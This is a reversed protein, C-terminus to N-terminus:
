RLQKALTRLTDLTTERQLQGLPQARSSFRSEDHWQLVKALEARLEPTLLHNEPLTHENVDAQPDGAQLLMQNRCFQVARAFFADAELAPSALQQLLAAQEKRLARLRHAVTQERRRLVVVSLLALVAVLAAGNAVLFETRRPLPQFSGPLFEHFPVSAVMTAPEAPTPEATSPTTTPSAAAVQAPTAAPASGGRVIVPTAEAEITRYEEAIPDFFSLRARPSEEVEALPMVTINFTKRGGFGISDAPQFSDRGSYVRWGDTGVLPPQSLASFNGQGSIEVEMTMPEGVEGRPPNVSQSLSFQGIAGGFDEPRGERPLARAQLEVKESRLQLERREGFMNGFPDGGFFDDFMSRGRRATPVVVHCDLEAPGIQLPGSKLATVASYFTVVDYQVGDIIQSRQEPESLREAVFGEGAFSPAMGIEFRFRRDLFIRVEVPVVQGVFVETQPVILELRAVQDIPVGGQPTTQGPDSQPAPPTTQGPRHPQPAGPVGLNEDVELVLPQTQYTRGGIEIALSPINFSGPTQPIIVFTHRVTTTMQFNLVNIETSQTRGVINLGDLAFNEPIRASRAGTVAITFEVPEGVAVQPRSLSAEVSIEQAWASSVLASLLLCVLVVMRGVHPLIRERKCNSM